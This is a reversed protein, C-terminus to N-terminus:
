HTKKERIDGELLYVTDMHIKNALLKVDNLTVKNIKILRDEITDSNIYEIGSYLGLISNPNDELEKLSNIYTVKAKVIDDNTFKGKKMNSIEKKVLTLVKRFDRKNIGANIIFLGYLPSSSSSIHYCLSHKERVNKFLKSDPSGGLIFSYVNLVYRLEFDTMEDLKCGIMLKSQNIHLKEKVTKIVRRHKKPRVFHSESVERTNNIEKFKDNILKEIQSSNVDGIVFIDIIDNDLISKYYDYLNTSNIKELDEIYGTSRYSIYSDNELEELMRVKAYYGPNEKISEIRDKLHNYSINYSELDFKKIGDEEVINPRFIINYLFDISKNLMGKETYKENLFAFELAMVSYKGSMYNTSTYFLNYLEETAIELERPTKYISNSECLINVVMNRLAIEEKVTKRKFNVQITITKFKDTKIVHLNYCNNKIKTYKM